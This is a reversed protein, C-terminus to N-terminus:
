KLTSSIQPNQESFRVFNSSFQPFYHHQIGPYVSLSTLSFFNVQELNIYVTNINPNRKLIIFVLFILTSYSLFCSHLLGLSPVFIVSKKRQVSLFDMFVLSSAMIHLCLVQYLGTCVQAHRRPRQWNMHVKIMYLLTELYSSSSFIKELVWLTWTALFGVWASMILVDM